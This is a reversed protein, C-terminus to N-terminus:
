EPILTFIQGNKDLRGTIMGPSSGGAFLAFDRGMTVSITLYFSEEGSQNDSQLTYDLFHGVPILLNLANRVKEINEDSPNTGHTILISGGAPDEPFFKNHELFYIIQADMIQKFMLAAESGYARQQYTRYLPMATAGMIGVIAIVVMLEILTFGAQRRM